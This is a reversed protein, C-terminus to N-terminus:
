KGLLLFLALLLFIALEFFAFFKASNRGVKINGGIYSSLKGSFIALFVFYFLPEGVIIASVSLGDIFSLSSIDIFQPFFSLFFILVKPNTVNMIVGRKYPNYGLTRNVENNENSDNISHASSKFSSIVGSVGIYLLYLVGIYKIIEIVWITKSIIVGLGTLVVSVHFLMGTSLGLAIKVGNKAGNKISESLVFIVDPGPMIM